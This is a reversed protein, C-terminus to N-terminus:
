SAYRLVELNSIKEGVVVILIVICVEAMKPETPDQGKFSGGQMNRNQDTKLLKVFNINLIKETTSRWTSPQLMSEEGFILSTASFYFDCYVM